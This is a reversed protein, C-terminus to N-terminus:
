SEHDEPQRRGGKRRCFEIGPALCVPQRGIRSSGSWVGPALERIFAAMRAYLRARIPKFYRMKGDLGPIFELVGTIARIVGAGAQVGTLTEQAAIKAVDGRADLSVAGAYTGDYFRANMPDVRVVGNKATMTLSVQQLFYSFNRLIRVNRGTQQRM